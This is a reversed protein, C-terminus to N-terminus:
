IHVFGIIVENICIILCILFYHRLVLHRCISMLHNIITYGFVSCFLKCNSTLIKINMWTLCILFFTAFDRKVIWDGDVGKKRRGYKSTAITIPSDTVM